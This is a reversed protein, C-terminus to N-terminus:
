SKHPSQASLRFIKRFFGGGTEPAAVPLGELVRRPNEEVLERAAKEGFERAIVKLAASLVPSRGRTSHADSAVVHILGRRVMDLATRRVAQGFVGTLSGATVQAVAGRRILDRLKGPDAAFVSNREPHAIIPTMGQVKLEFLVSETYGAVLTAPFEILLYAGKDGLTVLEGRSLRGPLGQEMTYEAGPLVEVKIGEEKFRRNLQSVAELIRGRGADRLGGLVHPTALLCTIGDAEAMRGMELATEEDGAGDDFGPLIHTHLDIM